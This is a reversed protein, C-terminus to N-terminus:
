LERSLAKNGAEYYNRDQEGNTYINKEYSRQLSIKRFYIKIVGHSFQGNQGYCKKHAQTQQRLL